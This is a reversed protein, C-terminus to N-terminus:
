IADKGFLIPDMCIERHYGKVLPFDPYHHAVFRHYAIRYQGTENENFICHHGTGLM